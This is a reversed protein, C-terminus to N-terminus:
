SRGSRHMAADSYITLGFIAHAWRDTITTMFLDHQKEFKTIICSEELDCIGLLIYYAELQSPLYPSFTMRIPGLDNSSGHTAELSANLVRDFM